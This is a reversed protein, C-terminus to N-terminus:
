SSFLDVHLKLEDPTLPYDVGGKAYLVMKPAIKAVRLQIQSATRMSFGAAWTLATIAKASQSDLVKHVVKSPLKAGLALAKVAFARDDRDLAAVVSDDDLTGGAFAAAADQSAPADATGGAEGIRRAVAGRVEKAAEPPLDHREELVHLLALAVFNAIRCIARM